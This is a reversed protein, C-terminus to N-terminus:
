PEPARGGARRGLRMRLETMMADYFRFALRSESPLLSSWLVRMATLVHSRVVLLFIAIILFRLVYAASVPAHAKDTDGGRGANADANDDDCPREPCCM